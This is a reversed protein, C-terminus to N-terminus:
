AGRPVSLGGVQPQHHAAVAEDDCRRGRVGFQRAVRQAGGEVTPSLPEREHRTVDHACRSVPTPSCCSIPTPSAAACRSTPSRYCLARLLELTDCGRVKAQLKAREMNLAMEELEDRATVAAERAARAQKVATKVRARNSVLM